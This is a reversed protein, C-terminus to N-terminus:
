ANGVLDLLAAEDPRAAVAVNAAGAKLLPEAVAASLCFHNYKLVNVLCSGTAALTLFTEASRKSFHTVADISDANVARAVADPLTTEAVARYVIVTTVRYGAAALVGGLDGARDEGALYLISVGYPIKEIALKALTEVGGEAAAVQTFWASRAAAATREGVVFVPLDLLTSHRRHLAIAHAANASTMVVASWPGAGIEARANPEIRLLPAQLVTHGRARLMKATNDGQYQPRTLLIRM